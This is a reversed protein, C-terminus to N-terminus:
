GPKTSGGAKTRLPAGTPSPTPYGSPAAGPTTPGTPTRPPTPAAPSPTTPSPTTPTSPITPRASLNGKGPVSINPLQPMDRMLSVTIQAKLRGGTDKKDPAPATADFDHWLPGGDLQLGRLLAILQELDAEESGTLTFRCRITHCETSIVNVAPAAALQRAGHVIQAMLPKHVTQWADFTPEKKFDMPEYYEWLQTILYPKRALSFPEYPLERPGTPKTPKKGAKRDAEKKKREEEKKKKDAAKRDEEVKTPSPPPLPGPPVHLAYHVGFGAAAVAVPLLWTYLAVLLPGPRTM